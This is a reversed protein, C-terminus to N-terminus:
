SGESNSPSKYDVMAQVWEDAAACLILTRRGCKKGKLRGAKLEAYVKTRCISYRRSFEYITMAALQAEVAVTPTPALDFQIPTRTSQKLRNM